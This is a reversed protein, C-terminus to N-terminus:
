PSAQTWTGILKTVIYGATEKYHLEIRDGCMATTKTNQWDYDDTGAYDPGGIIDSDTPSVSMLQDGDNGGNVIVFALGTATDPLTFIIADSTAYMQKGVDAADLTKDTAILEINADYEAQPELVFRATDICWGVKQGITAVPTASPRGATASLWLVDDAAGAHSGASVVGGAAITSPKRCMVGRFATIEDGSAGAEGAVFRAPRNGNADALTGDIHLLDAKKCAAGLTINVKGWSSLIIKDAFDTFAM